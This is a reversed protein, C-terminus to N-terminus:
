FEANLTLEMESKFIGTKEKRYDQGEKFSFRLAKRLQKASDKVHVFDGVPNEEFRVVVVPVDVETGDQEQYTLELKLEYLDSASAEAVIEVLKWYADKIVYETTESGKNEFITRRPTSETGLLVYRLARNRSELSAKTLRALEEVTISAPSGQAEELGSLQHLNPRFNNNRSFEDEGYENFPKVKTDAKKALVTEATSQSLTHLRLASAKAPTRKTPAEKLARTVGSSGGPLETYDQGPDEINLTKGVIAALCKQVDDMGKSLTNLQASLNQVKALEEATLSGFVSPVLAAIALSLLVM